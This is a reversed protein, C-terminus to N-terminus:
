DFQRPMMMRRMGRVFTRGAVEEARRQTGVPPRDQGFRNLNCRGGSKALGPPRPVRALGLRAAWGGPKRKGALGCSIVLGGVVQRGNIHDEYFDDDSKRCSRM